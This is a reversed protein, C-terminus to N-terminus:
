FLCLSHMKEVRSSEILFPCYIKIFSQHVKFTPFDRDKETLLHSLAFIRIYQGFQKAQLRILGLSSFNLKIWVRPFDVNRCCHLLLIAYVKTVHTLRHKSAQHSKDRQAGNPSNRQERLRVLSTCIRDLTLERDRQQTLTFFKPGLEKLM